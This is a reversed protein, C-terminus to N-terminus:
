PRYGTRNSSKEMMMPTNLLESLIIVTRNLNEIERAGVIVTKRSAFLPALIKPEHIRARWDNLQQM